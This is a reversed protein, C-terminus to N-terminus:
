NCVWVVSSVEIEYYCSDKSLSLSQINEFEGSLALQFFM